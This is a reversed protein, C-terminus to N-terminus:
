SEAHNNGYLSRANHVLANLEEISAPRCCANRYRRTACICEAIRTVVNKNFDQHSMGNPVHEAIYAVTVAAPDDQTGTLDIRFLVVDNEMRVLPYM